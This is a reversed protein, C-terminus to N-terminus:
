RVLMILYYLLPANFMISDLRDLVGGHGPILAGSDKVGAFRKIASEALDGVQGGIGLVIGAAAAVATNLGAYPAIVLSAAVAAVLGGLAGEWSKNPSIRPSIKHRGLLSGVFYAFVDCAWTIGLVLGVLWVHMNRLMIIHSLLFTIYTVGSVTVVADKVSVGHPSVVAYTLCGIVLLTLAAHMAVINAVFAALTIALSALLAVPMCLRVQRRQAMSGLELLGIACAAFVALWFVFGGLVVALIAVPALICATVVRTKLM